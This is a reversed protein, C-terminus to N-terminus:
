QSRHYHDDKRNGTKGEAGFGRLAAQDPLDLPQHTSFAGAHNLGHDDAGAPRGSADYGGQQSDDGQEDAGATDDRFKPLGEVRDPSHGLIGIDTM